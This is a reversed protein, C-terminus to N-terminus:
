RAAALAALLVEVDAETSQYSTICARLVTPGGPLALSSLWVKRGQHVRALLAVLDVGQRHFCVVPLPTRNAVDTKITALLLEREVADRPALDTIAVVNVLKDLQGMIQELPASEADVVVISIGRARQVLEEIISRKGLLRKWVPLPGPRGGEM